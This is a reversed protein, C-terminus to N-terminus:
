SSRKSSMKKRFLYVPVGITTKYQKFQELQPLTFLESIVLCDDKIENALKQGVRNQASKLIYCFIIDATQCPYNMFNECRWQINQLKKSKFRAILYPVKDWELGIFHHQPFERALPILLSGTGSGMDIITIPMSANQLKKRACALMCDKAKGVSPVYPAFRGCGCKLFSYLAYIVFFLATYGILLILILCFLKM